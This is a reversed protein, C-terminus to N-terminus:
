PVLSIRPEPELLILTGFKPQADHVLQLVAADFVNQDGNDVAQLAKGVKETPDQRLGRGFGAVSLGM